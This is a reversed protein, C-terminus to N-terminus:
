APEPSALTALLRARWGTTLRPPPPSTSDGTEFRVLATIDAKTGVLAPDIGCKGAANAIAQQRDQIKKKIDAGLREGAADADPLTGPPLQNAVSIADLIAQRHRQLTNRALGRVGDLAANDAPAHQAIAMLDGNQMIHGRPRDRLRAQEERWTVLTYLLAQQRPRLRSAKFRTYVAEPLADAYIAPDDYTQLDEALADGNGLETARARLIDCLEPLHRIDDLAYDVQENSLPRQLWNSRTEAKTLNVGLQDTLLNALSLTSSLGAFGAARRTDFVRRPLSGTHRALIQLDQVADHLILETGPDALVEGLGPLTPLSVADVLHLDDGALGIQVVGLQPYFTREWFFETDIAVRGHQRARRCLAQLENETTIM